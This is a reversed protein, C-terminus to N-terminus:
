SARRIRALRSSALAGLAGAPVGAALTVAVWITLQPLLGIWLWRQLLPLRPFGPPPADYHTGWARAMALAMLAAVPVRAALAYVLLVRGVGPWALIAVVGVLVAVVGWLGLWASWSLPEMQGSARMRALLFVAGSALLAAIPPQLSAQVPSSPGEGRAQLRWGFYFGFVPILWAIGLPSLGGGPLRSWYDPSWGRLEGVVRLATVALSVLAPWLVLRLHWPRRAVQGAVPRRQASRAPVAPRAPVARRAPVGTSVPLAPVGRLPRGAGPNRPAAM